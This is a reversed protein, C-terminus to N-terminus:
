DITAYSVYSAVGCNNNQNRAMNIYGKMGWSTGWSNRAIYYDQGQGASDYGVLMLMHDLGAPNCKPEFYIGSEYFQFSSQSADVITPMPGVTALAQTLDTENFPIVIKYGTIEAVVLPMSFRCKGVRNEFPYSVEGEIGKKEFIYRFSNYSTGKKLTIYIFRM